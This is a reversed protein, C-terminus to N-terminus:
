SLIYLNIAPRVPRPDRDNRFTAVFKMIPWMHLVLFRRCKVSVFYLSRWNPKLLSYKESRFSNWVKEFTHRQTESRKRTLRVAFHVRKRTNCKHGIIFNVRMIQGTAVNRFSRSGLGVSYVEWFRIIYRTSIQKIKTPKPSSFTGRTPTSHKWNFFCKSVVIIISVFQTWSSRQCNM